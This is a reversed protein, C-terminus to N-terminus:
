WCDYNLMIKHQLAYDECINLMTKTGNISPNLLVLGDAYLLGGGGFFSSGHLLECWVKLKILLDDIYVSFLLPSTVGGQKVGNSVSFVNSKENNWKVALSQNTYMYNCYFDFCM